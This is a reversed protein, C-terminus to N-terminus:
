VISFLGFCFVSTNMIFVLAIIEEISVIATRAENAPQAEQNQAPAVEVNERNPQNGCSCLLLAALIPYIKKM